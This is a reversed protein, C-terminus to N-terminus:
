IYKRYTIRTRGKQTTGDQSDFIFKGVSRISLVEGNKCFYSPNQMLRGNIFIKGSQIATLAKSRSVNAFCAVLCDLRVSSVIGHKIEFEPQIHLDSPDCNEMQIETHRIRTLNELLYDAMAETTFLYVVKKKTDVVIDGVKSREIGLHMVAGLVDRHTLEEAFKPYRSTIKCCRIPYNWDYYLADPLFAVMQREAFEYGGFLSVSSELKVTTQHLIDLENLTLFDSFTVINRRQAQRALDLFRKEMQMDEKM